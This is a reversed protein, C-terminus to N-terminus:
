GGDRNPCNEIVDQPDRRQVSLSVRRSGGCSLHDVEGDDLFVAAQGTRSGPPKLLIRDRGPGATLTAVRGGLSVALADDRTAPTSRCEL